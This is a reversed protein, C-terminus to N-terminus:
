PLCVAELSVSHSSLCISLVSSCQMRNPISLAHCLRSRMGVKQSRSSTEIGSRFCFCFRSCGAKEASYFVGWIDWSHPSLTLQPPWEVPRVGCLRTLLPFQFGERTGPPIGHLAMLCQYSKLSTTCQSAHVHSVGLFWNEVAPVPDQGWSPSFLSAPSELTLFIFPLSVSRVDLYPM